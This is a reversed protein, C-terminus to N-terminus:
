IMVGSLKSAMYWLSLSLELSQFVWNALNKNLSLRAKRYEGLKTRWSRRTFTKKLQLAWRKSHTTVWGKKLTNDSKNGIPNAVWKQTLSWTRCTYFQKKTNRSLRLQQLNLTRSVYANKLRVENYRTNKNSIKKEWMEKIAINKHSNFWISNYEAAM